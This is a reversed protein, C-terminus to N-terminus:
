RSSTQLRVGIEVRQEDAVRQRITGADTAWTTFAFDAAEGPSLTEPLAQTEQCNSCQGALSLGRLTQPSDNRIRYVCKVPSNQTAQIINEPDSPPEIRRVSVVPPSEETSHPQERDRGLVAFLWAGGVATLALLAVSARRPGETKM